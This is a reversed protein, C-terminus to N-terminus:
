TVQYKYHLYVYFVLGLLAIGGIMIYVLLLPHM